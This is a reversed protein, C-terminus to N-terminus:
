GSEKSKNYAETFRQFANNRPLSFVDRDRILIDKAILDKIVGFGLILPPDITFDGKVITTCTRAGKGDIVAGCGGCVGIRCSGYFSLSSDINDHIYTLVNYTSWGEEIPVEYTVYRPEKDETPNFRFVRVKIVRTEAVIM